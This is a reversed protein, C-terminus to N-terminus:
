IAEEVQKEAEPIRLEGSLLKPLLTNRLRSLTESQLNNKLIRAMLDGAIADFEKALTPPCAPVKITKFTNRTITSFVSGHSRQQLDAVRLFVTYYTFYDSYCDKGKVGYCSQNMAMPRGVIACKGVTGRASIITTGKPLLKASSNDLGSQTISKETRSVFVGSASPADVVSFWPIDGDWYDAISTKPTGGGILEIISELSKVPWGEPVWGMEATKVFRDPFQQRIHDPLLKRQDGLAARTEARAKLEEPIPNGAALANDIVPDFDVFWSKFLAQAMSELTTNIQHNLAIKDDFSGLITAVSKQVGLSPLRIPFNKIYQLNIKPVGTAESDRLIKDVSAKSSVYYYVFLPDAITSDVTLKMQNSSILYKEFKGEPIIGTQGITGKKTFVIDNPGCLSRSLRNATDESVFVFASDVFRGLGLTLNSGRIVPVGDKTYSSAPLNSGFPGDVLGNKVKSAIGGLTSLPWESGM